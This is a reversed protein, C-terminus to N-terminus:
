LKKAQASTLQRQRSLRVMRRNRRCLWDGQDYPQKAGPQVMMLRRRRQGQRIVRAGGAMLPLRRGTTGSMTLRTDLDNERMKRKGRWCISGTGSRKLATEKEKAASNWRASSGEPSFGTAMMGKSTRTYRHTPQDKTSAKAMLRMTTPESTLWRAILAPRARAYHGRVM